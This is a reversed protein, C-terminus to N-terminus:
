RAAEPLAVSLAFRGTHGSCLGFPLSGQQRVQSGGARSAGTEGEGGRGGDARCGVAPRRRTHLTLSVSACCAGIAVDRSCGRQREPVGPGPM